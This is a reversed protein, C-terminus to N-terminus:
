EKGEKTQPPGPLPMWHTPNAVEEFDSGVRFWWCPITFSSGTYADHESYEGGWVLVHPGDPVHSMGEAHAAYVTVRKGEEEYYLDAEHDCWGIIPTGDKPATEIPQWGSQEVMGAAKLNADFKDDPLNAFHNDIQKMQLEYVLDSHTKGCIVCDSGMTNEPYKCKHTGEQMPTEDSQEVLAARENFFLVDRHLGEAQMELGRASCENRWMNALTEANRLWRAIEKNTPM